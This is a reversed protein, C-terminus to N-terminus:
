PIRLPRKRFVFISEHKLRGKQKAGPMRSLALSLTRVLKWGHDQAYAVFEDALTPHSSVNAINIALLGDPKLCYACNDLTAGMFGTLWADKTPFKIYSQTPENSYQEQSFYPPSTFALDVSNRRLKPCMDESGLKHLEVDLIRDMKQALPLLEDRMRQLGRFTESSPDCGIYRHVKECALAGLMRGGWGMSMDWTVGGEAPLLEEYIAAAASPRFNSVGQTGTFTRLAKRISSATLTSSSLFDAFINPLGKEEARRRKGRDHLRGRKAIARTFLEQDSFLELPTRNGGCRVGWAHPFYSWALDLADMRQKVIGDRILSTHDFDLLKRLTEEKEARTLAYHPFGKTRWIRAAAFPAFRVVRWNGKRTKM